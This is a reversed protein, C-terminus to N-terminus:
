GILTRSDRSEKCRQVDAESDISIYFQSMAGWGEILRSGFELRCNRAPKVHHLGVDTKRGSRPEM